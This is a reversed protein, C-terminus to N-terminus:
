KLYRVSVFTSSNDLEVDMNSYDGGGPVRFTVEADDPVEIGSQRIAALLTSRTVQIIMPTRRDRAAPVEHFVSVKESM